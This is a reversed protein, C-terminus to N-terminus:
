LCGRTLAWLARNAAELDRASVGDTLHVIFESIPKRIATYRRRGPATLSFVPSRRDAADERRRVLGKAELSRTARSIEARDVAAGDALSRVTGTPVLGLQAMVRWEPLSLDSHQALLKLIARDFHKAALVIRYGFYSRGGIDYFPLLQRAETAPRAAPSRPTSKKKM